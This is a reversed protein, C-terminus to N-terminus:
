TGFKGTPHPSEELIVEDAFVISELPTKRLQALWGESYTVRAQADAESISLTTKTCNTILIHDKKKIYAFLHQLFRKPEATPHLLREAKLEKLLEMGNMKGCKQKALTNYAAEMEEDTYLCPRGPRDGDSYVGTKAIMKVIRRHAHHSLGSAAETVVKDCAQLFALVYRARALTSSTGKFNKVVVTLINKKSIREEQKSKSM